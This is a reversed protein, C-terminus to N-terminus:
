KEFPNKQETNQFSVPTEPDPLAAIDDKFQELPVVWIRTGIKGSESTIKILGEKQIQELYRNIQDMGMKRMVHENAPNEAMQRVLQSQTGRWHTANPYNKGFRIWMELVLEKFPAIPQSQHTQDLMSPEQYSQWKYRGYKVIYDPFNDGIDLIAKIFFPLEKNTLMITEAPSPFVFRLHNCLYINTKELTATDQPGIIRLSNADANLTVFLRGNWTVICGKQFKTSVSQDANAAIKKFTTSAQRLSEPSTGVTEDDIVWYPVEFLHSNFSSKGLIFSTADEFGGVAAGWVSRSFWTKGSNNPGVLFVNQGQRPEWGYACQLMYQAWALMHWYQFDTDDIKLMHMLLASLFPANGHPGLKQLGAPLPIPKRSYTNLKQVGNHILLGPKQFIFPGAGNIPEQQHYIFNLAEDIQSKGTMKNEKASLGCTVKLYNAVADKVTKAYIGNVTKMYFDHGDWYIGTTAKAIADVNWKRSFEAGLLDSWSYFAKDAHASFTHMGGKHVIASMPSTSEPVWFTPGQSGEEFASPWNFNPYKEKLAKEIVELPINLDELAAPKFNFEKGCEVLFAQLEAAPIPGFGTNHWKCGNAYYTTPTTLAKEDLCPLINLNLFKIFKKLMFKAHDYSHCPIKFPLQFDLRWNRGLSEEFRTPKFKLQKIAEGVREASLNLTDYDAIVHEIYRPPNQEKSIRMNPNLPEIGSYFCHRVAPNQYWAQRVTKDTRLEETLQETCKFDWPNGALAIESTLNELYFM